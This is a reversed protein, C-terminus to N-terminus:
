VGSGAWPSHLSRRLIAPLRGRRPVVPIALFAGVSILVGRPQLCSVRGGLIQLGLTAGRSVKAVDPIEACAQHFVCASCYYGSQWTTTKVENSMMVWVENTTKPPPLQNLSVCRSSLPCPSTHASESSSLENLRISFDIVTAVKQTKVRFVLGGSKM